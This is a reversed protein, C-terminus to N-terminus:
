GRGRVRGVGELYELSELADRKSTLELVFTGGYAHRDLIGFFGEFDVDGCGLALHPDRDRHHNDVLHVHGIKEHLAEWFPAIGDNGENTYLHSTDYTVSLGALAPDSLLGAVEDVGRFFGVARPMNEVCVKPPEGGMEEAEGLLRTFVERFDRAMFERYFPVAPNAVGPHFTVSPSGLDGALRLADAYARFTAERVRPNHSTPNTEVFPCHVTTDLSYSTVIEIVARPAGGDGASGLVPGDVVLEVPGLHHESAFELTARYWDLFHDLLTGRPPRALVDRYLSLSSVGVRYKRPM